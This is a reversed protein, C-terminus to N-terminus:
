NGVGILEVKNIPKSTGNVLENHANNLIQTVLSRAEYDANRRAGTPLPNASDDIYYTGLDSGCYKMDDTLLTKFEVAKFHPTYEFMKSLPIYQKRLEKPTGQINILSLNDMIFNFLTQKCNELVCYDVSEGYGRLKRNKPIILTLSQNGDFATSAIKTVTPPIEVNLLNCDEFASDMIEELGYPLKIKRIRKGKFANPGIARILQGDVFQPIVIMDSLGNYGLITTKDESYTFGYFEAGASTSSLGILDEKFPTTFKKGNHLKILNSAIIQHVCEITNVILKIRRGNCNTISASKFRGLDDKIYITSEYKAQKNAIESVSVYIEDEHCCKSTVKIYYEDEIQDTSFIELLTRLYSLDFRNNISYRTPKVMKLSYDLGQSKVVANSGAFSERPIKLTTYSLILTDIKSGSIIGASLYHLGFPLVLTKIDTIAFARNSIGVVLAGGIFQPVTVHKENGEYKTIVCQQKTNVMDLKVRYPSPTRRSIKESAFKFRFGLKKAEEVSLSIGMIEKKLEKSIM